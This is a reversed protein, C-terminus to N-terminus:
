SWVGKRVVVGLSERRRLKLYDGRVVKIVRGIDINRQCVVGVCTWWSEGRTHMKNIWTEEFDDGLQAEAAIVFEIEGSHEM